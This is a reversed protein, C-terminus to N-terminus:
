GDCDVNRMHVHLMFLILMVGFKCNLLFVLSFLSITQSMGLLLPTFSLCCPKWLIGEIGSYRLTVYQVQGISEEPQIHIM